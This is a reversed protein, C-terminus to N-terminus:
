PCSPVPTLRHLKRMNSEGRWGVTIPDHFDKGLLLEELRVLGELARHRRHHIPKAHARPGRVLRDVREPNLETHADPPQPSGLEHLERSRHVTEPSLSDYISTGRRLRRSLDTTNL